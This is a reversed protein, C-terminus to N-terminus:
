DIPDMAVVFHTPCFIEAIRFNSRATRFSPQGHQRGMGLLPALGMAVGEKLPAGIM